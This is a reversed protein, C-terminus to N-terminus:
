YLFTRLVAQADPGLAALVDGLSIWGNRHELALAKIAERFAAEGAARRAAEVAATGKSLLLEDSPSGPTLAALPPDSGGATSGHWRAEAERVLRQRVTDGELTGRAAIATWAPFAELIWWSGTGAADVSNGWWTRSVERILVDPSSELGSGLVLGAFGRTEPLRTSVVNVVDIPLPGFARSCFIWAARVLAIEASVVPAASTDDPTLWLAVGLGDAQRTEARYPGLAFAPTSATVDETTWTVRRRGGAAVDAIMRGPAIARWTEPIDFRLTFRPRTTEAVQGASDLAPQVRPLWDWAVYAENPAFRAQHSPLAVAEAGIHYFLTVEGSAQPEVAQPLRFSSVSGATSLPLRSASSRISDLVFAPWLWVAASDAPVPGDNVLDVRVAFDARPQATDYRVLADYSEAEWPSPPLARPAAPEHAPPPRVARSVAGRIALGDVVRRYGAAISDYPLARPYRFQLVILERRRAIVYEEVQLAVQNITGRMNVRIAPYGSLWLSDRGLMEFSSGLQSRWAVRIRQEVVSGLAVRGPYATMIIAGWLQNGLPAARPHFIVTATRRSVGPEFVWDDFPRPLSVGYTANEYVPADVTGTDQLSQAPAPPLAAVWAALVTSLM